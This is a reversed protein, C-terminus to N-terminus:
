SRCNASILTSGRYSPKNIASPACYHSDWVGRKGWAGDAAAGAHVASVVEVVMLVVVPGVRGDVLGDVVVHHGGLVGVIGDVMVVHAAASRRNDLVRVAAGPDDLVYCDICHLICYVKCLILHQVGGIAVNILAHSNHRRM